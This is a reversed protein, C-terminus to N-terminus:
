DDDDELRNRILELVTDDDLPVDTDFIYPGEIQPNMRSRLQMMTFSRCLDVAASFGQQKLLEYQDVGVITAAMKLGGETYCAPWAVCMCMDLHLTRRHYRVYAVTKFISLM